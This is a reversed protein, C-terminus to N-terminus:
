GVSRTFMKLSQRYCNKIVYSLAKGEVLSAGLIILIYYRDWDMPILLTIPIILCFLFLLFFLDYFRSKSFKHKVFVIIGSFFLIIDLPLFYFLFDRIGIVINFSAYVGNPAITREFVMYFRQQITKLSETPYKNFMELYRIHESHYFILITNKIPAFLTFPNLIMFISLSVLFYLMIILLFKGLAAKSRYRLYFFMGLALIFYFFSIIGTFKTSILLGSLIGLMILKSIQIYGKGNLEKFIDLSFIFYILLLFILPSEQMARLMTIKFIPNSYFILVQIIGLLWDELLYGIIFIALLSLLALALSAKRALLIPEVRTIVNKPLKIIEGTATIYWAPPNNNFTNNFHLTRLYQEINSHGSFNLAIGYVYEPLKPSDYSDNSLFQKNKLDLNKYLDWFRARSVYLYEDWHLPLNQYSNLLDLSIFIFIGTIIIFKLISLVPISITRM